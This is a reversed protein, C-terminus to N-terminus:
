APDSRRPDRALRSPSGGAIAPLFHVESDRGVPTRLGADSIVGDVTVAISPKLTDGTCLRDRLGPFRAELADVLERVTAGEATVHPAGGTLPQILTPIWVTAM